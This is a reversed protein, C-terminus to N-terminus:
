LAGGERAALADATTNERTDLVKMCDPCHAVQTGDAVQYVPMADGDSAEGSTWECDACDYSM